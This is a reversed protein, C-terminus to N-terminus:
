KASQGGAELNIKKAAQEDYARDVFKEISVARLLMEGASARLFRDDDLDDAFCGLFSTVYGVGDAAASFQRWAGRGRIRIANELLEVAAEDFIQFMGCITETLMAHLFPRATCWADAEELPYLEFVPLGLGVRDSWVEVLKKPSPGKGALVLKGDKDVRVASELTLSM